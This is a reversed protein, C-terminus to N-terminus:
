SPAYYSPAAYYCPPAYYAPAAYYAPDTYYAPPGYGYAPPAYYISAAYYAPAPTGYYGYGYGYGYGDGSCQDCDGWDCALAQQSGLLFTALVLVTRASVLRKMKREGRRARSGRWHSVRWQARRGVAENVECRSQERRRLRVAM